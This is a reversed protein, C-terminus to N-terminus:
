RLNAHGSSGARHDYFVEIRTRADKRVLLTKSVPLGAVSLLASANGLSHSGQNNKINFMHLRGESSTDARIAMM